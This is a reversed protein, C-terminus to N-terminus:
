GKGKRQRKSGKGRGDDLSKPSIEDMADERKTHLSHMRRRSSSPIPLRSRRSNMSRLPSRSRVRSEAGVRTARDYM